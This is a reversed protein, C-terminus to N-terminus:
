SFEEVLNNFRVVSLNQKHVCRLAEKRAEKLLEPGRYIRLTVLMMRLTAISKVGQLAQANRSGIKKALQRKTEQVILSAVLESKVGCFVGSKTVAHLEELESNAFALSVKKEGQVRWSVTGDYHPRFEESCFQNHLIYSGLIAADTVQKSYRECNCEPYLNKIRLFPTNYVADFMPLNSFYYQELGEVSCGKFEKRQVVQQMTNKLRGYMKVQQQIAYAQEVSMGTTDRVQSAM